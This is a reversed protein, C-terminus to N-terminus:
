FDQLHPTSVGNFAFRIYDEFEGSEHLANWKQETYEVFHWEYGAADAVQKSIQAQENDPTGYTFCLVNKVGLRYLYNVVLRSDHGGSLPIVWRNVTKNQKILRSFVFQLAEDFGAVLDILNGKQIPGSSLGFSFYRKSSIEMNRITVVEGAQLGYVDKYVTQNRFVLGTNIFEDLKKNDIDLLGNEKQYEKLNDTVFICDNHFGYFLPYSRVIDGALIFEYDTDLLIAFM